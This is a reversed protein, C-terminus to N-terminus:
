STQFVVSSCGADIDNRLKVGGIVSIHRGDL